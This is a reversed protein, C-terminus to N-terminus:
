ELLPGAKRAEFMLAARITPVSAPEYGTENGAVAGLRAIMAECQAAAGIRGALAERYREPNAGMAAAARADWAAQTLGGRQLADSTPSAAVNFAQATQRRRAADLLTVEDLQWRPAICAGDSERQLAKLRALRIAFEERVLGDTTRPLHERYGIAIRRVITDATAEPTTTGAIGARLDARIDGYLLPNGQEILGFGPQRESVAALAAHSDRTRLAALIAGRLTGPATASPIAGTDGRAEDPVIAPPAVTPVPSPKPSPLSDIAVFWAVATIALLAIRLVVGTRHAFRNPLVQIAALVPLAALTALTAAYFWVYAPVKGLAALVLAGAPVLVAAFVACALALREAVLRQLAAVGLDWGGLRVAVYLTLMLFLILAHPVPFLTLAILGLVAPGVLPAWMRKVRRMAEARPPPTATATMWGWVLLAAGGFAAVSWPSVPLLVAFAGTLVYLPMWGDRRWGGLARRDAAFRLAHLAFLLPPALLAAALLAWLGAPTPTAATRVPNLSTGVIFALLAALPAAVLMALTVHPRGLLGEWRALSDPKFSFALGPSVEGRRGLLTEVGTAVGPRLADLRWTWWAGAPRTLSRWAANLPHRHHDLAEILRWEELRALCAGVAYADGRQQEGAWGFQQVAQLLIADSRPVTSAILDASWAEVETQVAIEAMAPAALVDNFLAELEPDSARWTGRLAQDLTRMAAHLQAREADRAALLSAVEGAEPAGPNFDSAAFDDKLPRDADAAVPEYAPEAWVPSSEEAPEEAEWRAVHEIHRLAIEYAERLHKFGEPDDEPQTVRLKRAYARRVTDRDADASIGLVEWITSM